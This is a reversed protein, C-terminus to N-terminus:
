VDELKLAKMPCSNVALTVRSLDSDDVVERKIEVVGDSESLDFYDDAGIVCNAYGMCTDLDAVVKM